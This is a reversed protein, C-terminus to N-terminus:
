DPVPGRWMRLPDRKPGTSPRMAPAVDILLEAREYDSDMRQAIRLVEILVDPDDTSEVGIATLVRRMEYNSDMSELARVVDPITEEDIYGNEAAAILFEALSYDSDLWRGAHIFVEERESQNLKGTDLLEAYYISRGHSSPVEEIEALVGPVGDRQLILAVREEAGVGSARLAFTLTEEFWAQAEADYDSERGDRYFIFDLTGNRDSEILARIRDRRDREELEFYGGPEIAEIGMMDPTFVIEGDWELRISTRRDRFEFYGRRGDDDINSSTGEWDGLGSFTHEINRVAEEVADSIPGESALAALEAGSEAIASLGALDEKSLGIPGGSGGLGDVEAYAHVHDHPEPCPECNETTPHSVPEPAAVAIVTPTPLAAPASAQEAETDESGFIAESVDAFTAATGPLTLAPLQQGVFLLAVILGVFVTTLARSALRNDRRRGTALIMSFRSFIQKKTIMAGPALVVRQDTSAYEALRTLTRAYEAPRGTTAIVMDDCAIERNLDIQRILWHVAPLYFFFAAFLHEALRAWDDFRKLHALEHILVADIDCPSFDELMEQPLVVVGKFYGTAAPSRLRDSVRVSIARPCDLQNAWHEARERIAGPAPKSRAMTYALFLLSLLVRAILAASIILCVGLLIGPILGVMMDFSFGNEPPTVSPVTNSPTTPRSAIPTVVPGAGVFGQSSLSSRKVSRRATRQAPDTARNSSNITSADATHSPTSVAPQESQRSAVLEAVHGATGLFAPLAIVALLLGWCLVYRTAANGWRSFRLILAPGLVVALGLWAAHILHPAVEHARMVLINFLQEM